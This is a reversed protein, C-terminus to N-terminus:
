VEPPVPRGEDVDDPVTPQVPGQDPEVPLLGPEADGEPEAHARHAHHPPKNPLHNVM